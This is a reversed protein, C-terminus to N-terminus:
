RKDRHTLVEFDHTLVETDLYDITKMHRSKTAMHRCKLKWITCQRWTDIEWLWTDVSINGYKFRQESDENDVGKAWFTWSQLVEDIRKRQDLPYNFYFMIQVNLLVM